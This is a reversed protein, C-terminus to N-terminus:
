QKNKKFEVCDPVSAVRQGLISVHEQLVSYICDRGGECADREAIYANLDDRMEDPSQRTYAIACEHVIETYHKMLWMERDACITKDSASNALACFTVQEKTNLTPQRKMIVLADPADPWIISDKTVAFWNGTQTLSNKLDTCQYAYITIQERALPGLAYQAARRYFRDRVLKPKPLREEAFLTKISFTKKALSTDLTCRFLYNSFTVSDRRFSYKRGVVRADDPNMSRQSNSVGDTVLLGAVEWNGFIQQPSMPASVAVGALLTAMAALATGFRKLYRM